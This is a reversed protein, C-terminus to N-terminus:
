SEDAADSTYLLCPSYHNYDTTTTQLDLYLIGDISLDNKYYLDSKLLSSYTCFQVSTSEQATKKKPPPPTFSEHIEMLVCVLTQDTSKSGTTLNPPRSM